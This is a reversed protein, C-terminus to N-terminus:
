IFTHNSSIRYAMVSWLLYTFIIYNKKNRSYYPEYNYDFVTQGTYFNLLEDGDGDYWINYERIRTRMLRESDNIFTLRDDDPNSSVKAIGLIGLVKRRIMERLNM